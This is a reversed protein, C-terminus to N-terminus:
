MGIFPDEIWSIDPLVKTAVMANLFLTLIKAAREVRIM